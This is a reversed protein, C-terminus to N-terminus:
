RRRRHTKRKHSRKHKRSRKRGGFEFGDERVNGRRSVSSGEGSTNRPVRTGTGVGETVVGERNREAYDNRQQGVRAAQFAATQAPPDKTVTEIPQMKAHARLRSNVNPTPNSM